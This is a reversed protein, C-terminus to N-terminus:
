SSAPVSCRRLNGPAAYQIMSADLPRHAILADVTAELSGETRFGTPHFARYASSVISYPFLPLLIPVHHSSRTFMRSYHWCPLQEVRVQPVVPSEDREREHERRDVLHEREEVGQDEPVDDVVVRRPEGLVRRALEEPADRQQERRRDADREDRAHRLVKLVVVDAQDRLPEAGLEVGVADAMRELQRVRHELILAAAFREALQLLHPGVDLPQDRGGDVDSKVDITPM